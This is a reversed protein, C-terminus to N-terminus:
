GGIGYQDFTINRDAFTKQYYPDDRSAIGIHVICPRQVREVELNRRYVDHSLQGDEFAVRTWPSECYRLGAVFLHRPIICNGGVNAHAGEEEVTRLGLQGLNPDRFRELVEDCWGPLYEVDNDSRHLHTVDDQSIEWGLNTAKGPYFNQGLLIYASPYTGVNERLWEETGDTSGNDVVTFHFSETVTDLYSALTRRTLELRNHTVFVTHLKM